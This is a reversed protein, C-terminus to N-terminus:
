SFDRAFSPVAHRARSFGGEKGIGLFNVVTIKDRILNFPSSPLSFIDSTSARM